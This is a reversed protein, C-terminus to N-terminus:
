RVFRKSNNATTRFQKESQIKRTGAFIAKRTRGNVSKYVRCILDRLRVLSIDRPRENVLICKIQKRVVHILTSLELLHMKLSIEMSPRTFFIQYEEQKLFTQCAGFLHFNYRVQLSWPETSKLFFQQYLKRDCTGFFSRYSFALRGYLVVLFLLLVGSYQLVCPKRSVTRRM